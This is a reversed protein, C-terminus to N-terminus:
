LNMSARMQEIDDSGHITRTKPEEGFITITKTITVQGKHVADCNLNRPCPCMRGITESTIECRYCEYYDNIETTTKSM